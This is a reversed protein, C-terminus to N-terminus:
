FALGGPNDRADQPAVTEVGLKLPTFHGDSVLGFKNGATGAEGKVQLVLLAIVHRGGPDTWLVDAEGIMCHGHYQYLGSLKKGTAGAYSAFSPSAVACADGLSDDLVYTGCVITGDTAALWSPCANVSTTETPRTSDPVTLTVRSSGLLDQGAATLAITRVQSPNDYRSVVGWHFDLGRGGDVWSLSEGNAGSPVSGNGSKNAWSRLVAGSSMSYVTLYTPAEKSIAINGPGLEEYPGAQYMVALKQGDPSLALGSVPFSIPKIPLKTLRAPHAAGPSLRLLYWSTGGHTASTVVFTRDDAAGTVGYFSEGAPPNVVALTRGTRDDGVVVKLRSGGADALAAYYRPVSSAPPVPAAPASHPAGAQRVLALTVALATIVAAAALPAGWNLWRRAGRGQRARAPLRAPLEPPLELPRIDSVLATRARTAARVRDETSV